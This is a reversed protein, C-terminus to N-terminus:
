RQGGLTTFQGGVLIKGDAQVALSKVSNNAGPNFSDPIPSQGLAPGSSVLCLMPALLCAFGPLRRNGLSSSLTRGISGRNLRARLSSLRALLALTILIRKM